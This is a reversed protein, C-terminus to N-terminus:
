NSPGDTTTDELLTVNDDFDEEQHSSYYLRSFASQSSLLDYPTGFEVIKGDDLLAVKDYDLISELKHAVAIITHSSFKERIIQQMLEDTKSDVSSTAEDLILITSPRLMARALCFLQKQGHSLYIKEIDVDLGGKEKVNDWLRVQKLADIIAQDTVSQKPDLNMRVSGTLLYSDQPVGILRSRIEERPITSIDLNDIIISGSNMEIM